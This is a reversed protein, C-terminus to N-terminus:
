RHGDGADEVAVVCAFLIMGGVGVAFGFVFALALLPTM